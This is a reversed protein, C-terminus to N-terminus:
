TLLALGDLRVAARGQPTLAQEIARAGSVRLVPNTLIPAHRLSLLVVQLQSLRKNVYVDVRDYADVATM